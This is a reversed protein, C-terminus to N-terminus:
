RAGRVVSWGVRLSGSDVLPMLALGVVGTVASVLVLSGLGDVRQALLFAPVFSGAGVLVADVFARRVPVQAVRLLLLMDFLPVLLYIATAAGTTGYAASLPLALVVGAITSGTMAQLRLHPRGSSEVGAALLAALILPLVGLLAARVADVAGLWQEDFLYRVMPVTLGCLVGVVASVFLFQLRAVMALAEAHKSRHHEHLRSFAPFTVGHLAHALAILPTALVTCWTWLGLESTTLQTGVVGISCISFLAQVVLAGQYPLGRRALALAGRSVPRVLGGGWGLMIVLLVGSYAVQGAVLAWLGYGLLLGGIQVAYLAFYAVATMVQLRQYEQRRMLRVRPVVTPTELVMAFALAVMVGVTEAPTDFATRVLPAVLVLVVAAAVGISCQLLLVRGLDQRDVERSGPQQIVASGAGGDGLFRGFGIITAGVAFAGYQEPALERALVLSSILQVVNLTATFVVVSLAGRGGRTAVETATPQGVSLQDSDRPPSADQAPQQGTTM